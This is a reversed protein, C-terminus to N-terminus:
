NIDHSYIDATEKQKIKMNKMLLFQAYHDSITSIINGSILGDEINNSFINDILTRSHTKVRSPTSAYPLLFNTYLSDLFSASDTNHDYKLLDINFDGMLMITKDEKSFKQLLESLYIDIFETPNMCPHRYVCGVITNKGKSNIIEIFVSELEKSRYICLDDRVIYNINNDIYLLAGGCNAETPTHEFSYGSLDINTNRISSKNLRTETIGIINFTVNIKAQKPKKKKTRTLIKVKKGHITKDFNDKNFNSFPFIYKTKKKSTNTLKLYKYTQTNIKNCKIHVWLKCNDCEAAKHNKVVHNNCIKCPFKAPM